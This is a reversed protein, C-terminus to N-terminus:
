APAESFTMSAQKLLLACYATVVVVNLLVLYLAKSPEAGMPDGKWPAKRQVARLVFLVPYVSVSPRVDSALRFNVGYNYNFM